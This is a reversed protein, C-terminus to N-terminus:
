VAIFLTGVHYWCHLCCRYICFSFGVKKGRRCNNANWFVGMNSQCCSHQPWVSRFSAGPFRSTRVTRVHGQIPQIGHRVHLQHWDEDSGFHRNTETEQRGKVDTIRDKLIDALLCGLLLFCFSFCWVFFFFSTVKCDELCIIYFQCVFFMPKKLRHMLFFFFVKRDTGIAESRHERFEGVRPGVQCRQRSRRWHKWNRKQRFM